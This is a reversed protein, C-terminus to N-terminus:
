GTLVACRGIGVLFGSVGRVNRSSCHPSIRETLLFTDCPGRLTPPPCFQAANSEIGGPVRAMSASPAVSKWFAECITALLMCNGAWRKRLFQRRFVKWHLGSTRCCKKLITRRRCRRWPVRNGSQRPSRFRNSRRTFRPCCRGSRSRRVRSGDALNKLTTYGPGDPEAGLRIQERHEAADRAPKARLEEWMEEFKHGRSRGGSGRHQPGTKKGGGGRRRQVGQVIRYERTSCTGDGM